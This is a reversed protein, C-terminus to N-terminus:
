RRAERSSAAVSNSQIWDDLDERRYRVARGNPGGIRVFTPGTGKWRERALWAESVGLFRAADRSHLLGVLNPSPCPNKLNPVSAASGTHNISM